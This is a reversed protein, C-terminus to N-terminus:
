IEVAEKSAASQYAADLIQMVVQGEQVGPSPTKQERLCEIFHAMQADYISQDCHEQRQEIHPIFEGNAPGLALKLKTPFLSAYGKTGYIRTAAEPGDMHPQWWGSEILSTAGNNWSIMVIGTDDVDYSGMYTGIQAYVRTPMPDGMIYRVTDIAHVGMDALAGGGALERKTFWGEPGWNVHIGFGKTKTIRGLQGSHVLQRIYNVEVDFRWMHGVMLIGPLELLERGEASNMALPKEQFVAKGKNMFAKTYPAHFKNPIGMVVADIDNREVLALPESSAERIGHRRAFADAKEQRASAVAVIEVGPLKQLARAHYDNIFGSGILAIREAM